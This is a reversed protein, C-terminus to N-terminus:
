TCREPHIGRASYQNQGAASRGFAGAKYEVVHRQEVGVVTSPSAPTASPPQAFTSESGAGVFEGDPSAQEASAGANARDSNGWALPQLRRLAESCDRAEVRVALPVACTVAAVAREALPLVQAEATAVALAGAVAAGARTRDLCGDYCLTWLGTDAAQRLAELARPVPAGELSSWAWVKAVRIPPEQNREVSEIIDPRCRRGTNAVVYHSTAKQM